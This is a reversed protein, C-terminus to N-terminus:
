YDITIQGSLGSLRSVTIGVSLRLLVGVYFMRSCYDWVPFVIGMIAPSAVIEGHKNKSSM